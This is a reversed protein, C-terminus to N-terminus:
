KKKKIYGFIILTSAAIWGFKTTMPCGEWINIYLLRNYTKDVINKKGSDDVEM